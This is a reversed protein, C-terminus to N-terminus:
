RRGSLTKRWGDEKPSDEPPSEAGPTARAIRELLDTQREAEKRLKLLSRGTSAAHCFWVLFWIGGGLLILAMLDAL